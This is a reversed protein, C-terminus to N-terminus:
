ADLMQKKTVDRDLSIWLILIFFFCCLVSSQQFTFLNYDRIKPFGRIITVYSKGWVRAWLLCNAIM